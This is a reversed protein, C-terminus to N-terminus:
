GVTDFDQRVYCAYEVRAGEFIETDAKCSQNSPESSEVFRLLWAILVIPKIISSGIRQM